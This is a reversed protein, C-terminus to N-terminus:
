LIEDVLRYGFRNLQVVSPPRSSPPILTMARLVGLLLRTRRALKSRQRNPEVVANRIAIALQIPM